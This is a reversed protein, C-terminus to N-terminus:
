DGSRRRGMAYGLEARSGIGLKQYVHQLHNDVTRVSLFLRGAIEESSLGSAALDAVELERRSLPTLEEDPVVLAPTRAGECRAAREMATRMLRTARRPDGARRAARASGAAAEAALLVAGMEAFMSSAAELGELDDTALAAVHAKRTAAFPGDVRDGVRELASQAADVGGVRALTYALWAAQGWRHAELAVTLADVAIRRAAEPQGDAVAGWIRAEDHYPDYISGPRRWEAAHDLNLAATTTDGSLASCLALVASASSGLLDAAQPGVAEVATAASRPHGRHLEVAATHLAALLAVPRNQQSVGARLADSTLRETPTEGLEGMSVRAGFAELEVMEPPISVEGTAWLRRTAQLARDALTLVSEYSGMLQRAIIAAMSATVLVPGDDIEALLPEALAIAADVDGGLAHLHARQARLSALEAADRVRSEVDTLLAIAAEPQGLGASLIAAHVIAIRTMTAEDTALEAGAAFIADAEEYRGSYALATALLTAIEADPTIDWTGAALRATGSMDGARYTEIAARRLLTADGMGAELQWTAVRLVDSRRRMGTAATAAGLRGKLTTALMTGTMARLVDAYIPHSLWIERRRGDERLVIVGRQELTLLADSEVLVTAIAQGIPEGHAIVDLSAREADPLDDIRARVLEVLRASVGLEGVLSWRGDVEDIAGADRGSLCLERAFLANGDARRAVHTALPGDIPGGLVQGALSVISADDLRGVEIRDALGEKWLAIVPDPVREGTRVTAVVFSPMSMALQLVLTASHDDLLHADDVSLLLRRDGAQKTLASRATALVNGSAFTMDPLLHSLAGLPIATSAQTAVTSVAFWGRDVGLRAIETALRSKGVGGEGVLVVGGADRDLLAVARRMLDERGVLPALAM